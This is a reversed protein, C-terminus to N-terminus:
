CNRTNGHSETAVSKNLDEWAKAYLLQVYFASMLALIFGPFGDKYGKKLVFMKFFRAWSNFVLQYWRVPKGQLRALKHPVELTTYRNIKELHEFISDYSYHYLLGALRGTEGHVSFGEHVAKPEIFVKDKRFLRLQYDPFWGSHEIWRGLYHIKRPTWYGAKAEAEQVVRRIEQQLEESVVEDADLSFIWAHTAHALSRERQKAFGEWSYQLIRDTYRRCIALTEDSSFADIVVIEDAWRASNLSREIHQAENRVIM